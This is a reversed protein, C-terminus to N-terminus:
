KGLQVSRASDFVRIAFKRRSLARREYRDFVALQRALVSLVRALKEPGELRGLQDKMAVPIDGGRDLIRLMKGLLRVSKMAKGEPLYETHSWSHSILEHRARRVRVLDIQAEAIPRTLFLLHQNEGAIVQALVEAEVALGPDALAPLNLGHRRANQASTAKGLASKPGTSVQANAKNAARKRASIM